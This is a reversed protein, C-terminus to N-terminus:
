LFRHNSSLKLAGQLDKINKTMEKNNPTFDIVVGTEEYIFLEALEEALNDPGFIYSSLSGIAILLGLFFSKHLIFSKVKQTVEIFKIKGLKYLAYAKFNSKNTFYGRLTKKLAM